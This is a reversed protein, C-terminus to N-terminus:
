YFKRYLDALEHDFGHAQVYWRSFAAMSDAFSVVPRYGIAAKARDCAHVVGRLQQLSLNVDIDPAGSTRPPVRIPGEISLRLRGEVSQGLAGVARRLGQDMAGLLPDKRLAERVDSSVLHKLSRLPNLRERKEPTRLAALAERSISLVQPRNPALPQLAEVIQGWTVPEDDTVFLRKGDSVDSDLGLRMAHALNAVDVTCCPAAGDELLRFREADIAGLTQLLFYSQPGLINPPCLNVIALGKSAAAEIMEDQRLKMWGYSGKAPETPASEDRSEPPPPDGYVAVSSLHVLKQVNQRQCQKLLNKLGKLMVEPGGRSCNVVHTCGELAAALSEPELLDVARLEIGHRALDWANGASRILPVVDIGPEALLAKTLVRGVLGTAGVVAVRM